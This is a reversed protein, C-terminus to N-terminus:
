RATSIIVTTTEEDERKGETEENSRPGCCSQRGVSIYSGILRITEFDISM